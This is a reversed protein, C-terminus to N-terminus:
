HLLGFEQMTKWILPALMWPAGNIQCWDHCYAVVFSTRCEREIQSM